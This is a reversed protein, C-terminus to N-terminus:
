NWIKRCMSPVPRMGMQGFPELYRGPETIGKLNQYRPIQLLEFYGKVGEEMNDFVRFYDSIVMATGAKTNRGPQWISLSERGNKNWMEIWFLQSLREGAQIRGLRCELIAQAIIPSCVKIEYAAAYKKVYGAIKQIFEEKKM